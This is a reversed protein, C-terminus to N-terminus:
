PGSPPMDRSFIREHLSSASAPRPPLSPSSTSGRREPISAEDQLANSMGAILTDTVGKLASVVIIHGQGRLAVLELIDSIDKKTKLSGGGIKIVKM